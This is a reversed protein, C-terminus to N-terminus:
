SAYGMAFALTPYQAYGDSQAVRRLGSRIVGGFICGGLGADAAALRLWLESLMGGSAVYADRLGAPGAARARGTLDATVFLLASARTFAAQNMTDAMQDATALGGLTTIEAPNCRHVHFGGQTDRLMLYASLRVAFSDSASWAALLPPLLGRLARDDAAELPRPAFRRMSRRRELGALLSPAPLAPATLAMMRDRFPTASSLRFYDILERNMWPAAGAPRALCFAQVITYHNSQRPLRLVDHAHDPVFQARELRLGLDRAVMAAHGLAVGADATVICLARFGYKKVIRGVNAVSLVVDMGDAGAIERALAQVAAPDLGLDLLAHDHQDYKYAHGAPLAHGGGLVIAEASELGGGTPAARRCREGGQNLRGFASGLLISLAALPIQAGSRAALAAQWDPLPQRSVHYFRVGDERTLAVNAPAYHATHTRPSLYRRPGIEFRGAQWLSQFAAGNLPLEAHGGLGCAACGPCQTVHIAECEWKGAAHHWCRAQNFLTGQKLGAITQVAEQAVLALWLASPVMPDPTAAPLTALAQDLQRGACPGCTSEMYSLLPGVEVMGPRMRYRLLTAGARWLAAYAGAGEASAAWDADVLAFDRPGPSAPLGDVIEAFLDAGLATRLGARDPAHGLLLVRTARLAAVAGARSPHSGTMGLLRAILSETNDDLVAPGPVGDELLGRSVLLAVLQDVQRQGAGSLAAIIPATRTGDLLHGVRALLALGGAGALTETVHGGVVLARGEGVSILTVEPKLRPLRPVLRELEPDQAYNEAIQRAAQQVIM